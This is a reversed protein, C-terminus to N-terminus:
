ALGLRPKTSSAHAVPAKPRREVAVSEPCNPDAQCLVAAMGHKSWDTKLYFQRSYDPRTLVIGDIVEEKLQELLLLYPPEWLEAIIEREEAPTASGPAPQQKLIARWHDIRIEYNPLCQSYFGFMGILMRLDAFTHPPHIARFAAHNDKTPM